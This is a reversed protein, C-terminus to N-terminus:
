GFLYLDIISLVEDKTIIDQQFLYDDIAKLVETKDIRGNEPNTDYRELLTPGAVVTVVVTYMETTEDEATVTITITNDGVVLAVDGTGEVTAGPHTAMAEVMTTALGEEGEATYMTTSPDFAPSLTLDSLSLSQLTAGSSLEAASTVAITYCEIDPHPTEAACDNTGATIDDADVSEPRVQVTIDVEEGATLDVMGDDTITIGSQAGLHNAMASVTTMITSYPATGTYEMTDSAFEPTLVVGSLMLSSLTADDSRTLNQRYVKAMYTQIPAAPDEAMVEVTIITEAGAALDIEHLKTTPDKDSPATIIAVAGGASDMPTATVLVSRVRYGVDLYPDDLLPLPGPSVGTVPNNDTITFASLRAETELNRRERYVTIMYTEINADATGVGAEPTVELSIITKSGSGDLTVEMGDVDCTTADGGECVTTGDRETASVAVSVGGMNDTPTFDVTVKDVDHGVRADYEMRDSMFAPSLGGDSLSLASLTADESLEVRQRYVNVIYESTTAGDEATVTITITTTMGVTLDVPSAPDIDVTAGNEMATPIATVTVSGTGTLATANYMRPGTPGQAFVPSLDAGIIGAVTLTGLSADASPAVRTRYVTITYTKAAGDGSEPTVAVTITTDQGHAALTVENGDIEVETGTANVEADAGGSTDSLRYSVTVEDVDSGVTAEYGITDSDFSPSLAGASLSLRTLDADDSLEADVDSNRYVEVTYTMTSAPDEATVKVTFTTLAGKRLLVQNGEENGNQDRPLTVIAGADAATAAVTLMEVNTEVRAKYETDIGGESNTDLTVDTSIMNDATADDAAIATLDLVGLNANIEPNARIRYIEISYDETNGDEATVRVTITTTGGTSQGLAAEAALMVDMGDVGSNPATIVASAGGATDSLRYSVTVEDGSVRANYSTESASFRPSLSGPSISLSRLNDNDSLSQRERYVKVTYTQKDGSEATVEINVDNVRGATLGPLIHPDGSTADRGNVKITADDSDRATATVAVGTTIFPIRAEYATVDTTFTPTMNANVNTGPAGVIALNSLNADASVQAHAIDPEAVFLTMTAVLTLLLVGMLASM